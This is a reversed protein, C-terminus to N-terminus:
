DESRLFGSTRAFRHNGGCVIPLGNTNRHPCNDFKVIIDHHDGGIVIGKEGDIHSIREGFDAILLRITSREKIFKQVREVVEDEHVGLIKSLDRLAKKAPIATELIQQMEELTREM